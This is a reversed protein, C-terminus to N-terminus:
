FNNLKGQVTPRVNCFTSALIAEELSERAPGKNSGIQRFWYICKERPILGLKKPSKQLYNDVTAKAVAGRM